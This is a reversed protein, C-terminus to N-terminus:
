GPATLCTFLVPVRAVPNSPSGITAQMHHDILTYAGEEIVQIVNPALSTGQPVQVHQYIEGISHTVSQQAVLDDCLSVLGLSTGGPNVVEFCVEGSAGTQNTVRISTKWNSWNSVGLDATAVCGPGQAAAPPMALVLLVGLPALALRRYM